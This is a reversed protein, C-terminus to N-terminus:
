NDGQKVPGSVSATESRNRCGACLRLRSFRPSAENVEYALSANLRLVEAKLTAIREEYWAIAEASM